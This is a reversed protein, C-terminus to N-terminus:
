QKPFDLKVLLGEPQFSLEVGGGLEREAAFRILRTGFGGSSPPSVEPGGSERWSLRVQSTGDEETVTSWDIAVQGEPVSLAGYKAANTALEHLILGLSMAQRPLLPVSPEDAVAITRTAGFYPEMVAHVLDPLAASKGKTSVELSRGLAEFRGLFADRYEEATRGAVQTQRALAHTVSLLNKIRHDLEQILIDKEDEKRRRETADVISLLLVRHGSDPHRLRQASVLMTRRGVEPFETTVEYDFVSASKPIVEELIFRLEDINWQGDGLEYFPFGITDDRSTEFTRYFAPNASIVCLDAQLVLLPDRLTDMVGQAQVHASRLFRYLEDLDLSIEPAEAKHRCDCTAPCFLLNVLSSSIAAGAGRKWGGRPRILAAEAKPEFRAETM